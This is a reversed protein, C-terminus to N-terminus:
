QGTLVMLAPLRRLTALLVACVRDANTGPIILSGNGAQARIVLAEGPFRPHQAHRGPSLFSETERGLGAQSSRNM